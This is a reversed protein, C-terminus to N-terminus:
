VIVVEVVVVDVAIVAIVGFVLMLKVAVIGVDVENTTLLPCVRVIPM